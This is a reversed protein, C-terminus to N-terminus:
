PTAFGELELRQTQPAVTTPPPTITRFPAVRLKELVVDPKAIVAAPPKSMLILL